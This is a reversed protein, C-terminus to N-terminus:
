SKEGKKTTGFHSYEVQRHNDDAFNMM